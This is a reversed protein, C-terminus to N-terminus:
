SITLPISLYISLISSSKTRPNILIIIRYTNGEKERDSDLDEILPGKRKKEKKEKSFLAVIWAFGWDRISM